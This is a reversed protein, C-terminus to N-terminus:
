RTAIYQKMGASSYVKMEDNEDQYILYVDIEPHEKIFVKAKEFGMIMFSTSYADATMCDAALVTASLISHEVPYGTRPDISHAYRKGEKYYFNRYNGSTAMGLNTIELVAFLEDNIGLADEVPKSIGIRWNSRQPNKGKVVVEGGVEVMYNRIGKGDLFRAVVDAGYGKAIASTSLMIREDAKVIKGNKFAVKRYGTIQKLSDITHEDVPIGSKFGFGWANILPAITIDFAGETEKSVQLAKNFVEIFHTDPVVDINRNIRTIVSTDNFASLSGDVKKLEAMIQDSLDADYQYTAHYVTGFIAGTSKQFPMNQQRRLIFVTGIILLLLAPLQWVLSKRKM